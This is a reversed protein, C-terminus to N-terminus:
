GNVQAARETREVGVRRGLHMPGAGANACGLSSEALAAMGTVAIAEYPDIAPRLGSHSLELPRATM